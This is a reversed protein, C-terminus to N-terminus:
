IAANPKMVLCVTLKKKEKQEKNGYFLTTGGGNRVGLSGTSSLVRARLCGSQASTEPSMTFRCKRPTTMMSLLMTAAVLLPHQRPLDRCM